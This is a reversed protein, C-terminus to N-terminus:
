TRSSLLVLGGRGRETWNLVMVGGERQYKLASYIGADTIHQQAAAAVVVVTVLVHRGWSVVRGACEVQGGALMMAWIRM